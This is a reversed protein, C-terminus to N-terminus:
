RRENRKGAKAKIDEAKSQPAPNRSGIDQRNFEEARRTWLAELERVKGPRQAALDRSEGRDRSLDYLEWPDGKAAVLKWDGVRIARHDDHCWWLHDHLPKRDKSFVRALSRGPSPPVNEGNWTKPLKGGALEVITPVLDIVHGPTHRLEGRTKIQKPWHAILPTSIGGEHVWTKHRRFPTNAASSFGPGLCLYSGGSGPAAQPDHNDGRVMIEASAGNDSLFFILTNDWANMAKLQAIIRGIERDMRDVMAAHIAMKTAQFERQAPTLEDWPLPRFIEGDGLTELNKPFHYPPGLEREMPPANNKTIGLQRLRAARETQLANWGSLYRTRYREIDEPLAHLPFHPATFTIHSFFPRDRHDRAHEQLCEIVHDAIYTTAYYPTGPEVEPLPQDDRTHRKPYFFRDHDDLTYARDFGNAIPQGDIHWKGTHYSRYGLPKLLAPLLPAWEPRQRQGTRREAGYHVDRRIQQAYFGTLMAARSPWCRATNYFQTFRLGDRALSDLHPTAIEGGYCGLDSFGLDDALIIVVNPKAAFAHGCLFCLFSLTLAALKWVPSAPHLVGEGGDSPPSPRPSSACRVGSFAGRRLGRGAREERPSSSPLAKKANDVQLASLCGRDANCNLNMSFKM